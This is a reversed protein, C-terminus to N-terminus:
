GEKGEPLWGGAADTRLPLYQFLERVTSEYRDPDMERRIRKAFKEGGEFLHILYFWIEKMRLMANRRSGFAAAYGRYLEDLFAFLTGKDAAPGGKCQIVLAPNAVLGRGLMLATVDPHDREFAACGAQTILDGNYCVPSSSTQYCGDFIEPRVPRRYLDTRVRPHLILESLPYRNFIEMLPGFEAPDRLGLRTKVSIPLPPKTFVTELFRDLEAPDALFGAGKGKAVVTGSPCGLNLNVEEYGLEALASAAWMFDEARRTLLQPVVRLGQNHELLLDKKARKPFVHEKGPSFFPMFYKDVGPFFRRHLNRYLYGTIGEMPAFYYQIM